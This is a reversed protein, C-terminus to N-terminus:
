LHPSVVIEVAARHPFQNRDLPGDNPRDPGSGADDATANGASSNGCRKRISRRRRCAFAPKSALGAPPAVHGSVEIWKITEARAASCHITLAIALTSAGWRTAENRSPLISIM